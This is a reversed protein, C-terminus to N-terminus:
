QTVYLLSYDMARGLFCGQIENLWISLSLQLFKFQEKAKVQILNLEIRSFNSESSSNGPRGKIM